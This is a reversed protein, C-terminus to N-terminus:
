VNEIEWKEIGREMPGAGPWVGPRPVALSQSGPYSTNDKLVIFLMKGCRLHM